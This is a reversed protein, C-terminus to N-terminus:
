PMNLTKQAIGSSNAVSIVKQAIFIFKIVLVASIGIKVIITCPLIELDYSELFEYFTGILKLIIGHRHTMRCRFDTLAARINSLRNLIYCAVPM